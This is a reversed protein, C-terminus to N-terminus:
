ERRNDCTETDVSRELEDSLSVSGLAISAAALGILGGNRAHPQHVAYAYDHCLQDVIKQIVGHDGRFASDRVVKELRHTELCTLLSLSLYVEPSLEGRDPVCELAGQKRRDYAKDNLLRQVSHDM